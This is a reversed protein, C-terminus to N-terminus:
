AARTKALSGAQQAHAAEAAIEVAQGTQELAVAQQRQQARAQRRQEVVRPDRLQSPPAGLGEHIATLTADMDVLDMAEEDVQAYKMAQDAFNMAARAQAMQQVKALPSQYLIEIRKREIEPPPPPFQGARNLIGYRRAIFGSLMRMVRILNPGILRLREEQFGLFETATMQPRDKLQMMLSFLLAERVANRRQESQQMSLQINSGRELTEVLRKGSDSVTGPLIANPVWDAANFVADDHVLKVPEAAHQAAVIHTREMEQLMDADPRAVHAPGTPYPSNARTKWRVVHYPLEYYGGRRELKLDPSCYLSCVAGHEPGIRYPNYNPNEWVAQVIKYTRGDQIERDDGLLQKVLEGKLEQERHFRNVEGNADVDIYSQSLPIARDIIREKGLDEEQVITGLGSLGMDGYTSSIQEYFASASPGLSTLMLSTVEYAWAKVPQWKNLEPDDTALEIWRNAPNTLQGYIGGVFNDMALLGTGDFLEDFRPRRNSGQRVIQDPAFLRANDDWDGEEQARVSQMEQHRKIVSDRDFM